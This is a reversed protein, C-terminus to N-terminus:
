EWAPHFFGKEKLLAQPSLACAIGGAGTGTWPCLNPGGPRNTGSCRLWKGYFVLWHRKRFCVRFLYKKEREDIETFLTKQHFYWQYTQFFGVGPYNNVSDKFVCAWYNVATFAEDAAATSFHGMEAQLSWVNGAQAATIHSQKHPDLPLVEAVWERGSCRQLACGSNWGQVVLSVSVRLLHGLGKLPKLVNNKQHHVPGCDTKGKLIM